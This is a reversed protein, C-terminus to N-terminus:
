RHCNKLSEKNKFIKVSKLLLLWSKQSIDRYQFKDSIKRMIVRSYHPKCLFLKLHAELPPRPHNVRKLVSLLCLSCYAYEEGLYLAQFARPILPNHLFFTVSSLLRM